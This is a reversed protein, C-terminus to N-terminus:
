AYAQIKASRMNPLKNQCIPSLDKSKPRQESDSFLSLLPFILSGFLYNKNMKKKNLNGNNM